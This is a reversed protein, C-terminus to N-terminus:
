LNLTIKINKFYLIVISCELKYLPPFNIDYSYELTNSINYNERDLLTRAIPMYKVDVCAPM